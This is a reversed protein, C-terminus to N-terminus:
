KGGNSSTRQEASRVLLFGEFKMDRTLSAVTPQQMGPGGKKM